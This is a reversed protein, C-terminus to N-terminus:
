RVEGEARPHELWRTLGEVFHRMWENGQQSAAVLKEKPLWVGQCSPCENIPESHVLRQRLREGCQPCRARALERITHEREVERAHKLKELLERDREAFYQDEEGREKLRIKEGLPDRESM